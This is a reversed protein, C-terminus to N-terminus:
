HFFTYSDHYFIKEPESSESAVVLLARCFFSNKFIECYGCSFVQTSTEKSFTGPRKNFLSELVPMKSYITSFKQGSIEFFM